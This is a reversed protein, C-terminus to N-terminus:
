HIAKYSLAVQYVLEVVAFYRYNEYSANPQKKTPMLPRISEMSEVCIVVWGVDGTVVCLV